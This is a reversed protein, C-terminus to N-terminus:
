HRRGQVLRSIEGVARDLDDNIVVTDYERSRALEIRAAALRRAIVEESDTGRGRLRRELEADSPPAVFVYLADVANGRLTAAGQVDIVLLCALGRALVAEVSDRPTGYLNGHVEAHELFEGRAVAARFAAADLFRYDVGDKEGARPPRTTATIAQAFGPTRRLREAVSTKGVGSPGSLVVLLGSDKKVTM